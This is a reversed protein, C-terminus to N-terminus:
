NEEKAERNAKLVTLCVDIQEKRTRAQMCTNVLNDCENAFIYQMPCTGCVYDWYVSCFGCSARKVAVGTFQEATLNETKARELLRTWKRRTKRKAKQIPTRSAM